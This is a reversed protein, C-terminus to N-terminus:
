ARKVENQKQKAERITQRIKKYIVNLHSELQEYTVQNQTVHNVLYLIMTREEPELKRNPSPLYENLNSIQFQESFPLGSILMMANTYDNVLTDALEYGIRHQSIQNGNKTAEKYREIISEYDQIKDIEHGNNNTSNLTM